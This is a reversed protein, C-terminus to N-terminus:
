ASTSRPTPRRVRLRRDRIVRDERPPRGGSLRGDHRDARLAHPRPRPLLARHLPGDCRRRPRAAGLRRRGAHLPAGDPDARSRLRAAAVGTALDRRARLRRDGARLLEPPAHQTLPLSLMGAPLLLILYPLFLDRRLARLHVLTRSSNSALQAIAHVPIAVAPELFLLMVALLMIGGAMGLVASVSATLLSATWLVFFELGIEGVTQGRGARERGERGAGTSRARPSRPEAQRM